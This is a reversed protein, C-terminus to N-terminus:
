TGPQRAPDDIDAQTLEALELYDAFNKEHYAQLQKAYEEPTIKDSLADAMLNHLNDLHQGGAGSVWFNNYSIEANGMEKLNEFLATETEPVTVGRVQLPGGPSFGAVEWQADLYPQYGVKSLWFMVFDMTLNTQEQDKEIVSIYEGTASEVSRPPCQVLDGEMGPNEFTGWEFTAVTDADIELEKLREPSLSALDATLQGLSWSGDALIAVKQQLFKTYTDSTVFFDDTAYKPFMKKFNTIIEIIEPTDFRLTGDQVAKYFRQPSYTYKNHIFPDTPDFTFSGDLDPDYNWDGDQARVTEVWKIHYQDFYIESFWQPLQWIFNIGVPTIGAADLKESVAIFEDWTTPPAEVGAKTFLDKNYFWNIHVSRTPLMIRSGTANVARFFDWNLDADWMQSTYPNTTGRYQDMNVYGRFTAVYNGAVVDLEIPDSALQTGLWSVYEDAKREATEWVLEVGPQQAKYADSLAQKVSDEPNSNIGIVVKGSLTGQAALRYTSPDIPRASAGPTRSLIAAGAIASAGQIMRRRSLNADISMTTSTEM